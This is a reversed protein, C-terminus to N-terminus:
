RIGGEDPLEPLGVQNLLGARQKRLQADFPTVEILESISGLAEYWLGAQAYLFPHEEKRSQALKEQLGAPVEVREIVGGALIDRSRRNPDSIVTVSWRYAVGPALRVGHDALRIRHLGPQVPSPLRTELVPQTARPDSIAVEVPLATASSIFWYLSPQESVTLGTDEPVLASLVFIDRASGGRTGGGVRGAPAGLLPPKYVPAPATVTTPPTGQKTDQAAGPAASIGVAVLGAVLTSLVASHAKM